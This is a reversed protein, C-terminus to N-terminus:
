LAKLDLAIGMEDTMFRTLLVTQTNFLIAVGLSGLGWSLMHKKQISAM